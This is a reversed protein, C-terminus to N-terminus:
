KRNIGKLSSTYNEDTYKKEIDKLRECFDNMKSGLRGGPAISDKLASDKLFRANLKESVQQIEAPTKLNDLETNLSSLETVMEKAFAIRYKTTTAGM